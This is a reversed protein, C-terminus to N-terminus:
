LLHQFQHGVEDICYQTRKIFNDYVKSLTEETISQITNRINEQLDAVTHPNNEYAKAKLCGWLFYDCPNLDPSRAPWRGRSIVRDEFVEELAALSAYATHATANDQQFTGNQKENDTLQEFFPHLIDNIYRESNVTNNFFIPGILRTRSIACWVGVKQDHLPVEHLQHPNEAAWYRNNQSNVYGSLHFWAEDSFLLLNPDIQGTFIEDRIWNCFDLRRAFDAPLLQHQVSIKYAKLGLQKTAKFASTLSVGSQASLRRLSKTPSNHLRNNIETLKNLTLATKSRRKKETLVSGSSRWKKMLKQIANKHPPNRGYEQRFAEQTTVFSNSRLFQEVIFVREELELVM